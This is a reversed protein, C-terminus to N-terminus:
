KCNQLESTHVLSKSHLLHQDAIYKKGRVEQCFTAKTNHVPELGPTKIAKLNFIFTFFTEILTGFLKNPVLQYDSGNIQYM